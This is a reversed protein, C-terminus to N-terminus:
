TPDEKMILMTKVIIASRSKINNKKIEIKYNLDSLLNHNYDHAVEVEQLLCIDINKEQVTKYVYDKKNQLGLCINWTALKISM